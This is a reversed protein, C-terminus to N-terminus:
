MYVTIRPDIPNHADGSGIMIDTIIKGVEHNVNPYKSNIMGTYLNNENAPYDNASLIFADDASSTILNAESLDSMNSTAMAADVYRVRLALRLRLSNALKKWKAVDGGYILDASGFTPKGADL